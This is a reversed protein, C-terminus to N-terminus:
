NILLAPASGVGLPIGVIYFGILIILWLILTYAAYPLLHKISGFLTDHDDKSYLEMFAIYLVFYAMMPTLAYTISEGARFVATAFTPSLGANMFVPVVNGSLIAWKTATGPLVITSIASVIFTLIILPIGTFGSNYILNAMGAVLVVGINTAKFIFIFMSAMLILLIVKGVGDLSHSLGTCFDRHSKISKAVIGYSLGLIIFLFTLIFVFGQNFFSNYGFLKEIYYVQSHDLLNGSFPLGPIINYGIILVYILGCFLSILIGRKERKTLGGEDVEDEDLEYRGLKPAVTKETVTTIIFALAIAAIIMIIFTAYINITYEPSLLRASSLTFDILSADVSNMVVNIGIGCSLAAFATIVGAKPHRKGYKFLLAALPIMVAFSFDGMVSALICLLALSFTVVKKSVRNTLLYFFSDLFGSRDMIGFGILVILLMSLPAFSAFNSVTNSFIFRLGEVNMLSEVYVLESNFVGTSTVRNYIAYVDFFHLIGSLIVVSFILVVFTMIPHLVIRERIRRIKRM